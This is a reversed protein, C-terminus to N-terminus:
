VGQQIDHRNSAGPMAFTGLRGNPNTVLEQNPFKALGRWAGDNKATKRSQCAGQNPIHMPLDFPRRHFLSILIDDCDCNVRVRTAMAAASKMLVTAMPAATPGAEAFALGTFTAM